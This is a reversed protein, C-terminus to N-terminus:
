TNTGPAAPSRSRSAARPTTTRSQVLKPRGSWTRIATGEAVPMALSAWAMALTRLGRPEERSAVVHPAPEHHAAGTAVHALARHDGPQAPQQRAPAHADRRELGLVHGEVGVHGSGPVLDPTGLPHLGQGRADLRFHGHVRDKE